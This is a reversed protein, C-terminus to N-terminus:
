SVPRPVELGPQEAGVWNVSIRVVVVCVVVMHFEDDGGVFYGTEYLQGYCSLKIFSFLIVYQM